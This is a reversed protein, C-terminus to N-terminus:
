ARVSLSKLPKSKRKRPQSFSTVNNLVFEFVDPFEKQFLREAPTKNDIGRIDFNHVVTLVKLRQEPLGRHAKHVFALYGNRGEVQSSARQFSRVIREAWRQCILQQEQTLQQTIKHGQWRQVTEEILRQYHIRLDKNRSKCPTRSLINQWYMMPLIIQLLYLRIKQKELQPFLETEYCQSLFNEIRQKTWEQWHEVSKLIDPIQSHLQEVTKVQLGENQLDQKVEYLEEINKEGQKKLANSIILQKDIMRISQKIENEISDSNKWPAQGDEIKEIFPHVARHINQINKQYCSRCNNQWLYRYELPQRKSYYVKTEKIELYAKLTQKWAKGIIVGAKRALLQNFHFLDPMSPVDLYESKSLQLLASARDSVLQKIKLGFRNIIDEIPHYWSEVDRRENSQEFFPLWKDIRSM